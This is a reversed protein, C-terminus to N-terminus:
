CKGLDSGLEASTVQFLLTAPAPQEGSQSSRLGKGNLRTHGLLGRSM